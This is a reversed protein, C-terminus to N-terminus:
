APALAAMGQEAVREALALAARITADPSGDRYAAVKVAGAAHSPCAEAPPLIPPAGPMGISGGSYFVATALMAEASLAGANEAAAYAARRNADSQDELWRMVHDLALRDAAPLPHRRAQDYLVHAAWGVAELRPLAHAIYDLAEVQSGSDRLMAYHRYLDDDAPPLDEGEVDILALVQRAQTLKVVPWQTM